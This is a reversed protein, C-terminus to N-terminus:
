GEDPWLIAWSLYSVGEAPAAPINLVRTQGEKEAPVTDRSTRSSSAEWAKSTDSLLLRITLPLHSEAPGTHM